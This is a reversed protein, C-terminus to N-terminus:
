SRVFELLPGYDRSRDVARIAEIYRDRVSGPSSVAGGGWTFREAGLEREM